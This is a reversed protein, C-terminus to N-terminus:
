AAATRPRWAELERVELELWAPLRRRRALAAPLRPLAAALTDLGAESLQRAVVPWPRRMVTTLLANRTIRTRRATDTQRVKSPHHHVVLEPVYRLQWGAAALDVAVRDEEGAFFVVPDFGGVALFAERRVVAGCAAFGLVAKGPADGAADLPSEAMLQCLPDETNDRGLLIRAALLGVRPHEDLMAAAGALAGPAWWSDDDAFAVYPTTAREVGINRAPAGLNAGLRVVRVYPFLREVADATADDSGNDVLIVPDDHYALSRLVEARRNRSIVVTTVQRVGMALRGDGAGATGM